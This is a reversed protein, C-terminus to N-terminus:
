RWHRPNRNGAAVSVGPDRTTRDSTLERSQRGSLCVYGKLEQIRAQNIARLSRKMPLCGRRMSGSPQKRLVLSPGGSNVLVPAPHVRVRAFRSSLQEATGERCTIKHWAHAPPGIALKTVSIPRHKSDRRLLKPSRGNGSWKKPPRPGTRLAWVSTEPLIGAM